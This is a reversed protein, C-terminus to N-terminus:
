ELADTRFSCDGVPHGAVENVEVEVGLVGEEVARVPELVQDPLDLRGPMSATATVSWPFMNPAYSSWVDASSAPM